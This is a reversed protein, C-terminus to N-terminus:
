FVTKRYSQVKLPLNQLPGFTFVSYSEELILQLFDNLKELFPPVIALWLEPLTRCPLLMKEERVWGYNTRQMTCIKDM